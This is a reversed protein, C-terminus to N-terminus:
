GYWEWEVREARRGCLSFVIKTACALTLQPQHAQRARSCLSFNDRLSKNKMQLQSTRRQSRGGLRDVLIKRM